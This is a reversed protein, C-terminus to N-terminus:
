SLSGAAQLTINLIREKGVFQAIEPPVNLVFRERGKGWSSLKGTFQIAVVPLANISGPGQYGIAGHIFKINAVQPDFRNYQKHPTPPNVELRLNRNNDGYTCNWINHRQNNLGNGDRHDVVVGKPTALIERHMQIYQVKGGPLKVKRYAYWTYGDQRCYWHYQNLYEFDSDDVLAIKNQGLLLEKTM